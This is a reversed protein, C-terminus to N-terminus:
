GCTCTTSAYACTQTMYTFTAAPLDNPELMPGMVMLNGCDYSAYSGAEGFEGAGACISNCSLTTSWGPCTTANLSCQALAPMGNQCPRGMPSVVTGCAGCDFADSLLDACYSWTAGPEKCLTDVASCAPKGAVCFPVASPDIQAPDLEVGCGGCNHADTALDVCAGNCLTLGQPCVPMGSQCQAGLPVAIGCAGCNSPDTMVDVCAGNCSTMTCPMSADVGNGSVWTSSPLAACAASGAGADGSLYWIIVGVSAGSMSETYHCSGIADTTACSDDVTGGSETCASKLMALEGSTLPTGAYSYETCLHLGAVNTDCAYSRQQEGGGGGGCGMVGIAIAVLLGRQTM